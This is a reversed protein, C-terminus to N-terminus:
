AWVFPPLIVLCSQLPLRYNQQKRQAECLALDLTSIFPTSTCPALSRAREGGAWGHAGAAKGTGEGDQRDGTKLGRHENQLRLASQWGGGTGAFRLGAGAAPGAGGSTRTDRTHCLHCRRSWGLGAASPALLSREGWPTLSKFELSGM